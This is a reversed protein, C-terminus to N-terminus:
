VSVLPIGVVRYRYRYRHSDFYLVFMKIIIITYYLILMVGGYMYSSQHLMIVDRIIPSMKLGIKM